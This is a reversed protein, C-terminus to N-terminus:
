STAAAGPMISSIRASTPGVAHVEGPSRRQHGAGRTPESAGDGLIQRGAARADGDVVPVRRGVGLGDDVADARAAAAGLGEGGVEGVRRAASRSAAATTSRRPGTSM